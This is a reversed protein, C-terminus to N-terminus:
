LSEYIEYDKAYLKQIKLLQSRKPNFTGKSIKINLKKDHQITKKIGCIEFVENLAPLINELRYVKDLIINGDWDTVDDWMRATHTTFHNSIPKSVSESNLAEDCYDLFLDFAYSSTLTLKNYNIFNRTTQKLHSIFNGEKWFLYHFMSITRATPERSFAFSFYNKWDEYLYERAFLTRKFQYKGLPTKYCNLIDNYENKESQIFCPPMKIRDVETYHPSLLARTSIGASKKIHLWFFKNKQM